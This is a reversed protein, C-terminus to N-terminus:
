KTAGDIATIIAARRAECTKLATRDRGWLSATQRATLAADPLSVPPDCPTRVAEPLAPPITVTRVVLAPPEAPSSACGSVTLAAVTLM